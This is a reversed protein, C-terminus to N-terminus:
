NGWSRHDFFGREFIEEVGDEVFLSKVNLHTYKFACEFNVALLYDRDYLRATMGLVV